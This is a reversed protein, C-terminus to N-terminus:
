NNINNINNNASKIASIRKNYTSFRINATNIIYFQDKFKYESTFMNFLGDM